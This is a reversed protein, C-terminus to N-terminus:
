LDAYLSEKQQPVINDPALTYRFFKQDGNVRRVAAAEPYGIQMLAQQWEEIPPEDFTHLAWDLHNWRESANRDAFYDWWVIRAVANQCRPKLGRILQRWETPTRAKLIAHWLRYEKDRSPRTDKKMLKM